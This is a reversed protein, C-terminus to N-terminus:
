LNRRGNKYIVKGEKLAIKVLSSKKLLLYKYEKCTLNVTDFIGGIYKKIIETRKCCSMNSFYDSVIILDIDSKLNIGKKTNTFKSGYGIILTPNICELKAIVFRIIYYTDEDM